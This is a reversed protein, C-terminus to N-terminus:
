LPEPAVFGPSWWTGFLVRSIGFLVLAIVALAWAWRPPGEYASLLPRLVRKRVLPILSLTLLLLAAYIMFGIPNLGWALKPHGHSLATISRTVGCGPCPHDTLVRSICTSDRFGAEPLFFSLGFVLTGAAIWYATSRESQPLNSM